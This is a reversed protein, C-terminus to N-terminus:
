EPLLDDSICLGPIDLKGVAFAGSWRSTAMQTCDRSVAFKHVLQQDLTGEIADSVVRGIVPLFQICVYYTLLYSRVHIDSTSTVKYAHGSGGTAMVLSADSPYYGIVWDDDPSDTYRYHLM